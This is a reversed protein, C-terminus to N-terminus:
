GEEENQADDSNWASGLTGRNIRKRIKKETARVPKKHDLSAEEQEKEAISDENNEFVGGSPLGSVRPRNISKKPPQPTKSPIQQATASQEDAQNTSEEISAPQTTSQIEFAGSEPMSRTRTRRNAKAATSADTKFASAEIDPVVPTPRTINSSEPLHAPIRKHENPEENVEVISDNPDLSATSDAQNQIPTSEEVFTSAPNSQSVPTTDSIPNSPTSPESLEPTPSWIIQGTGTVLNTASEEVANGGLRIRRTLYSTKIFISGRLRTGPTLPDVKLDLSALEGESVSCPSLTVGSIDCEFKCSIPVLLLLKFKHSIKPKLSGLQLSTPYSWTGEEGTIGFVNGRVAVSELSVKQNEYVYLATSDEETLRSQNGTVELNLNKLTVGDSAVSVVPGKKSWISHGNGIITIPKKITIPGQYEGRTVDLSLAHGESTSDIADQLSSKLDYTPNDKSADVSPPPSNVLSESGENESPSNPIGEKRKRRGFLDGFKM